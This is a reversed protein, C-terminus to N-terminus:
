KPKTDRLQRSFYYSEILKVADDAGFEPLVALLLDISAHDQWMHRMIRVVGLMSVLGGGTVAAIGVSTNASSYILWVCVILVIVLVFSMCRMRWSLSRRLEGLQQMLQSRASDTWGSARPGGLLVSKLHGSADLTSRLVEILSSM